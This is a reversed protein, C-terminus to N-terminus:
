SGKTQSGEVNATLAWVFSGIWGLVTWGLLLNLASIATANRHKRLVAIFLPLFYVIVIFALTGVSDFLDM